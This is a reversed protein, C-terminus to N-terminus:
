SHTELLLVWDGFGGSNNGPPTFTRKEGRVLPPGVVPSFKGIAPDYWRASIHSGSLQALDITIPRPEPLYILGFSGDRALAAVSRNQGSGLDDTIGEGPGLLFTNRVDPHLMWWDLASFLEVLHTM